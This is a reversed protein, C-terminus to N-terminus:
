GPGSPGREDKCCCWGDMIVGFGDEYESQCSGCCYGLHHGGQPMVALVEDVSDEDLGQAALQERLEAELDRDM